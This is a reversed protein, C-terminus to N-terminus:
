FELLNEIGGNKVKQLKTVKEKDVPKISRSKKKSKKVEKGFNKNPSEIPGAPDPLKGPLVKPIISNEKGRIPSVDDGEEAEVIKTEIKYPLDPLNQVVWTRPKQFIREIRKAYDLLSISDGNSLRIRVGDRNLPGRSTNGTDVYNYITRVRYYYMLEISTHFITNSDAM